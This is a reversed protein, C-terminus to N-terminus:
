GLGSGAWGIGSYRNAGQAATVADAPVLWWPQARVSDSCVSGAVLLAAAGVTRAM